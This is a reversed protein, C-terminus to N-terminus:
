YTFLMTFSSLSYQIFVFSKVSIRFENLKFLVGYQNRYTGDPSIPLKRYLGEILCHRVNGDNCESGTDISVKVYFDDCNRCMQMNRAICGALHEVLVVEYKEGAKELFRISWCNYGWDDCIHNASAQLRRRTSKNEMRGFKLPITSEAADMGYYKIWVSLRIDDIRQLQPWIHGYILNSLCKHLTRPQLYQKAENIIDIKGKYGFLKVYSQRVARQAGSAFSRIFEQM